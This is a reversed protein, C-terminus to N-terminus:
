IVISEYIRIYQAGRVNLDVFRDFKTREGQFLKSYIMMGTYRIHFTPNFVCYRVPLTYLLAYSLINKVLTVIELIM